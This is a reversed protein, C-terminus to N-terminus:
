PLKMFLKYIWLHRQGNKRFKHGGRLNSLNDKSKNIKPGDFFFDGKVQVLYRIVDGKTAERGAEM